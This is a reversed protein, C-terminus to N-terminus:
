FVKQPAAFVVQVSSFKEKPSEVSESNFTPFGFVLKEGSGWLCSM